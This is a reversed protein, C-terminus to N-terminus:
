KSAQDDSNADDAEDVEAVPANYKGVIVEAPRLMRSGHRYGPRIVSIVRGDKQEDDVVENRLASHRLPDFAEGDPSYTQLGLDGLEVLFQRYIMHVGQLIPQTEETSPISDLSLKFSDLV